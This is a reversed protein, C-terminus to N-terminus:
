RSSLSGTHEKLPKGCYVCKFDKIHDICCLHYHAGCECVYRCTDEKLPSPSISLGCHPDPCTYEFCIPCVYNWPTLDETPLLKEAELKAEKILVLAIDAQKKDFMIKAANYIDQVKIYNQDAPSIMVDEELKKLILDTKSFYRKTREELGKLEDAKKQAEQALILATKYDESKLLERSMKLLDEAEDVEKKKKAYEEAKIERLIKEAKKASHLAKKESARLRKATAIAEKVLKGGNEIGEETGIRYQEYARNLINEVKSVDYGKKKMRKKAENVISKASYEVSANVLSYFKRMEWPKTDWAQLYAEEAKNINAGVRRGKVLLKRPHEMIAAKGINYSMSYFGSGFLFVGGGILLIRLLFKSIFPIHILEMFATSGILIGGLAAMIYPGKLPSPVKFSENKM